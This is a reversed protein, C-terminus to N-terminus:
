GDRCRCIQVRRRTRGKLNEDEYCCRRSRRSKLWCQRLASCGGKGGVQAAWDWGEGGGNCDWWVQMDVREVQMRRLKKM